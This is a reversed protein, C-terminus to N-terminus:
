EPDYGMVKSHVSPFATMVSEAITFVIDVLGLGGFLWTIGPINTQASLWYGACAFSSVVGIIGCIVSMYAEEVFLTGVTFGISMLALIALPVDM